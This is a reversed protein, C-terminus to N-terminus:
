RGNRRNHNISRKHQKRKHARHRRHKKHRQTQNGPGTFIASSPTPDNLGVAAPQCGDGQCSPPAPLPEPFGGGMRADYIDQASDVDWRSLREATAFFVDSGDPSAEMFYSPANSEGSSILSQRGTASDYVYADFQGNTDGTVLRDGSSFFVFRGDASLGQNRHM